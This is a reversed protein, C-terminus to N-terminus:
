ALFPGMGYVLFPAYKPTLLKEMDLDGEGEFEARISGAEFSVPGPPNDPFKHHLRDLHSAYLQNWLSRGEGLDLWRTLVLAVLKKPIDKIDIQFETPCIECQFLGSCTQCSNNLRLNDWHKVRCAIKTRLRTPFSPTIYQWHDCVDTNMQDPVTVEWGNPFIFWVQHRLLFHGDVIRPTAEWQYNHGTKAYSDYDTLLSLHKSYDLGYYHVKMASQFTVPYFGPYINQSISYGSRYSCPETWSYDRKRTGRHLNYCDYCLIHYPMDRELAELFELRDCEHDSARLQSIYQDGLIFRIPRCTLTFAVADALPLFEAIIGILEIPLERFLSHEFSDPRAKTRFPPIAKLLTVLGDLPYM